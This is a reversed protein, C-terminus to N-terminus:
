RGSRRVLRRLRSSRPTRVQTRRVQEAEHRLEIARANAYEITNM